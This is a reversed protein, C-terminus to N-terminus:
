YEVAILCLGSGPLAPGAKGAFGPRLREVFEERTLNGKGAELLTGTMMRVMHKLFGSGRVRFVLEEGERWLRAEFIRRV